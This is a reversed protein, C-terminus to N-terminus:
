DGQHRLLNRAVSQGSQLAGEVTGIEPGEHLAEGAFFLTNAEPALFSARAASAGVTEYSYGGSTFPDSAWNYVRAQLLLADLQDPSLGFMGALSEKARSILDEDSLDKLAAAPPGALWGTLHPTKKPIQTWWTPVTEGTFFFSADQMAGGEKEKWFAERFHMAFKIVPGFGLAQAAATKHPLEPRFRVPLPDSQWLGLPLTLLAKRAWFRDKGAFVTVEGKKWEIETVVQNLLVPINNAKLEKELCALLPAYGEEPRYQEEDATTLEERLALTSARAADAAYYGEVYQRLSSRLGEYPAGALDTQLFEAVPKDEELEKWKKDLQEYDDIFDGEKEWGHEERRWISGEAPLLTVGAKRALWQTLLLNGHVFEAGAEVPYPIHPDRITHVRGGTRDRAELVIVRLGAGALEYAAMLGAAGAGIVLLDTDTQQM